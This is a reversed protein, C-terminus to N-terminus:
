NQEQFVGGTAWCVHVVFQIVVGRVVVEVVVAGGQISLYREFMQMRIMLCPPHANYLLIHQAM